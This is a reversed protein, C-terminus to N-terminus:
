ADPGEHISLVSTADDKEWIVGLHYESTAGVVVRDGATVMGDDTTGGAWQGAATMDAGSADAFGQGRVYLHEAAITDGATHTITVTGADADYSWDFRAQPADVATDSGGASSSGSASLEGMQTAIEELEAVTREVTAVVTVGDRNVTTDEFLSGFFAPTYPASEAQESGMTLLSEVVGDLAKATGDNPTNLRVELGRTNGDRYVAGAATEISRAPSLDLSDDGSQEPFWSSEVSSAFRVPGAVTDRYADAVPGELSDKEGREVDIAAKVATDGGIAYRGDGLVGLTSSYEESPEYITHEGYTSETYDVWASDVSELAASEEWSGELLYASEDNSPAANEESYSAFFTFTSLDRLDIGERNEIDDLVGSLTTPGDYYESQARAGLWANFANRVGDDALFTNVDVTFVGDASDPVVSLRDPGGADSGSGGLSDLCGALGGTGLLAALTGGTRVVSRRSQTPPAMTGVHRTQWNITEM